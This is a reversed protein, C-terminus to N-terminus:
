SRRTRDLAKKLQRIDARDQMRGSAKKAAILEELGMYNARVPGFRGQVRRNWAQRFSPCGDVRSLIDIRIPAVGLQIIWDPDAIDAPSYDTDSGDFFDRMAALVRRANAETPEVFLDLDKTARPRAHHAVAHAGVILYRVRHRNLADIFEEYDRSPM